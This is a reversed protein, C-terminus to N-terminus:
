HHAASPPTIMIHARHTGPDMLWPMGPADANPKLPLGTSEATAYPIYVVYRFNGNTVEGTQANYSAAPAYYVFLTTPAAPMKFKGGKVDAERQELIEKPSKGTKKLERGREMFPELDKHYCSASFGEQAPDDAICIMENTGKRLVVFESKENYGYVLAGDRSAAPAALLAGKIQTEAPLVQGFASLASCFVVLTLLYKM